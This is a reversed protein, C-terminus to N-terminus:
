DRPSPSTYLLCGYGLQMNLGMTWNKSLPLYQTFQYTARYYRLDLAPLSAEASLRQYRGRTPALPNDRSDRGWGVTLLAAKSTEGYDDVYKFYRYPSSSYAGTSAAEQATGRTTVKTAEIKAGFYVTDLETVPVEFDIGGGMTEYAVNAM